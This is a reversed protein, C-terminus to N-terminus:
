PYLVKSIFNYILMYDGANKTLSDQLVYDLKELRSTDLVNGWVRSCIRGISYALKGPENYKSLYRELMFEEFHKTFLATNNIGSKQLFREVSRLDAQELLTYLKQTNVMKRALLLSDLMLELAIHAVFFARVPTGAVIPSISIRLERTNKFFFASSHFLMDVELHRKWGRLLSHLKDDDTFLYSKKEPHIVWDKCANKVLDPLMIGMIREPDSAARELYFHSLFNM